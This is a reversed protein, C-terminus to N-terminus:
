NTIAAGVQLLMQVLKYYHLQGLKYCHKGENAILCLQGLKYYLSAGIQLVYINKDYFEKARIITSYGKHNLTLTDLGDPWTVWQNHSWTINFFVKDAGESPCHGGIKALHSQLRTSWLWRTVHSMQWTIVNYECFHADGTECRCHGNFKTPNHTLIFLSWRSKWTVQRDLSWTSKSFHWTDM